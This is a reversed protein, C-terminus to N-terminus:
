LFVPLLAIRLRHLQLSKTNLDFKQPIFVRYKKSIAISNVLQSTCFRANFFMTELVIKLM